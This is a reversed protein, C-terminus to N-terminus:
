AEKKSEKVMQLFTKQPKGNATFEDEWGKANLWTAPHPIFRGGDKAWDESTTAQKLAALIKGQLQENPNIKFYAKEAQGKSKKKPYEKWFEDFGCVAVISSYTDRNEIRSERNRSESSEFLPACQRSERRMAAFLRENDGPNLFNLTKTSKALNCGRCLIQINEPTPLGGSDVPIIHDFALNTSDGCCLCVKDRERIIKKLDAPIFRAWYETVFQAIGGPPEPFKSHASRVRQHQDWSVFVGLRKENYRYEAVAGCDSLETWWKEITKVKLTEVKLPFCTSLLVRPDAEFRGFDDAVTTLRWFMREAGDSLQDLTPSTRCSERIIRNPM